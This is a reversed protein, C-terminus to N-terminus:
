AFDGLKSTNSVNPYLGNKRCISYYWSHARYSFWFSNYGNIFSGVFNVNVHVCFQKKWRSTRHKNSIPIELTMNACTPKSTWANDMNFKSPKYQLILSLFTWSFLLGSTQYPLRLERKWWISVIKKGAASRMSNINICYWSGADGAMSREIANNNWQYVFSGRKM